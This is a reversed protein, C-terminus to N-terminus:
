DAKGQAFTTNMLQIIIDKQEQNPQDSGQGYFILKTYLNDPGGPNDEHEYSYQSFQEIFSNLRGFAEEAVQFDEQEDACDNSIKASGDAYVILHDCFGGVGGTLWYEALKDPTASNEESSPPTEITRRYIVLGAGGAFALLLLAAILWKWAIQM